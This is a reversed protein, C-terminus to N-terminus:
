TRREIDEEDEPKWEFHPPLRDARRRRIKLVVVLAVLLAFLSFCVGLVAHVTRTSVRHHRRHHHDFVVGGTECAVGSYDDDCVCSFENGDLRCEGHRSCNSAFLEDMGPCRSATCNTEPSLMGPACRQCKVRPRCEYVEAAIRVNPEDYMRTLLRNGDLLNMVVTPILLTEPPDSAVWNVAALPEFVTDIIIALVAGARQCALTKQSFFCGGRTTVCMAGRLDAANLLTGCAEHDFPRQTLNVAMQAFLRPPTSTLTTNRLGDTTFFGDGASYTGLFKRADGALVYFDRDFAVPTSMALVARTAAVPGVGQREAGRGQHSQGSHKDGLYCSRDGGCAGYDPESVFPERLTYTDSGYVTLSLTGDDLECGNFDAYKALRSGFIEYSIEFGSALAGDIVIVQLNWEGLAIGAVDLNAADEHPYMTYTIADEFAYGLVNVLAPRGRRLVFLVEDRTANGSAPGKRFSVEADAPECVVEFRFVVAEGARMDGGVYRTRVGEVLDIADADADADM